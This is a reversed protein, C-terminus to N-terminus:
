KRAHMMDLMLRFKELDTRAQMEREKVREERDKQREEVDQAYKQREFDLRERELAVQAM